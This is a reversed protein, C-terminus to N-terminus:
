RARGGGAAMAALACFGPHVRNGLFVRSRFDGSLLFGIGRSGTRQEAPHGVGCRPRNRCHHRRHFGRDGTEGLEM